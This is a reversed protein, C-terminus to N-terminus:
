FANRSASSLASVSVRSPSRVAPTSGTGAHARRGAETSSWRSSPGSPCNAKSHSRPGDHRLYRAPHARVRTSVAASRPGPRLRRHTGSRRPPVCRRLAAMGQPHRVPPCCCQAPVSHDHVRGQASPRVQRSLRRDTAAASSRAVCDGCPPSSRSVRAGAGAPTRPTARPSSSCSCRRRPRSGGRFPLAAWCRSIATSARVPRVAGVHSRLCM